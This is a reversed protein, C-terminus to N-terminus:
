LLVLLNAAVHTLAPVRWSGTAARQWGLLLGAAIDLPLIRVGYIAVHVAAFLVASCIVAFVTGAPELLGFWVRRFWVEEAVAALSNAALIAVSWAGPARGGAIVRGLAFAAIGIAGPAWPGLSGLNAGVYRPLRPLPLSLGVVLLAIFLLTLTPVPRRTFELLAPRAALLVCGGVAIAGSWWRTREDSAATAATTTVTNM